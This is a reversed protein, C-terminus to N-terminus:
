WKGKKLVEIKKNIHRPIKNNFINILDINVKENDKFFPDYELIEAMHLAEESLKELQEITLTSSLDNTIYKETFYRLLISKIQDMKDIYIEQEFTYNESSFVEIFFYELLIDNFSVYEDNIIKNVINLDSHNKLVEKDKKKLEQIAIKGKEIVSNLKIPLEIEVKELFQSYTLPVYEEGNISYKIMRNNEKSQVDNMMMTVILSKQYADNERPINLKNYDININDIIYNYMSGYLLEDLSVNGLESIRKLRKKNPQSQGKEWKSVLSKHAPPEFCNGFEEMTKNLELRIKKINNALTISKTIIFV